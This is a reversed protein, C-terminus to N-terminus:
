INALKERNLTRVKILKPLRVRVKVEIGTGINNLSSALFGYKWNWMFKKRHKKKLM